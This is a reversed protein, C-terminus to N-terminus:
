RVLIMKQTHFISGSELLLLYVGSSVDIGLESKGDWIVRYAGSDQHRDVLTRIRQGLMNLIILRTHGPRSLEYRVTTTPNFPNPYNPHLWTSSPLATV